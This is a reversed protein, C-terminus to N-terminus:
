RTITISQSRRALRQACLESCTQVEDGTASRSMWIRQGPVLVGHACGPCRQHYGKFYAITPATTMMSLRM